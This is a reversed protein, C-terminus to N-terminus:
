RQLAMSVLDIDRERMKLSEERPPFWRVWHSAGFGPPLDPVEQSIAEGLHIRVVTVLGEGYAVDPIVRAASVQSKLMKAAAGLALDKDVHRFPSRTSPLRYGSGDALELWFVEWPFLVGVDGVAVPANKRAVVIAVDRFFRRLVAPSVMRDGEEDSGDGM